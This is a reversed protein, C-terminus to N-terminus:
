PLEHVKLSHCHFLLGNDIGDCDDEWACCSLEISQNAVICIGSSFNWEGIEEYIPLSDLFVTDSDM